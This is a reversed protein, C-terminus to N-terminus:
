FGCHIKLFIDYSSIDDVIRHPNNDPNHAMGSGKYFDYKYWSFGTTLIMNLGSFRDRILLQLSFNRHYYDEKDNFFDNFIKYEPGATIATKESFKWELMLYAANTMASKRYRADLGNTRPGYFGYDYYNKYRPIFFIDKLFPLLYIYHCKNALILSSINATPYNFEPHAFHKTFEYKGRTTFNFGRNRYLSYQSILQNVVADRYDLPDAVYDYAISDGLLSVTAPRGVYSFTRTHNPINDKVIRFYNDATLRKDGAFDKKYRILSYLDTATEPAYVSGIPTTDEYVTQFSNIESKQFIGGLTLFLKPRIEYQGYLHFGDLGKSVQSSMEGGATDEKGDYRIYQEGPLYYGPVYTYDPYADDEIDDPTGNNNRDWYLSSKPPDCEYSLFDEEFDFRGNKDKDYKVPITGDPDGVPIANLKSKGNEAFDDGDDNDEILSYLYKGCGYVDGREHVPCSFTTKYRSGVVYGEGGFKLRDLFDWFANITAVNGAPPFFSGDLTEQSIDYEGYAKLKPLNCRGDFGWVTLATPSGPPTTDNKTGNFGASKMGGEQNNINIYTAGVNFIDKVKKTLHIGQLWDASMEIVGYDQVMGFLGTSSIRSTVITATNMGDLFDAFVDFRAGAFLSQNFTYPTFSTKIRDGAMVLIGINEQIDGVQVVGNLWKRMFPHYSVSSQGFGTSNNGSGMGFLYFGNLLHNGFMDYYHWEPVEGVWMDNEYSGKAAYNLYEPPSELSLKLKKDSSDLKDDFYALADGYFFCLFIFVSLAASLGKKGLM